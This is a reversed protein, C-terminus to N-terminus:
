LIFLHNREYKIRIVLWKKRMFAYEQYKRLPQFLQTPISILYKLTVMLVAAQISSGKQDAMAATMLSTFVALKIFIFTYRVKKERILM